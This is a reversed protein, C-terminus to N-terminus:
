VIGEKYDMLSIVRSVTNYATIYSERLGRTRVFVANMMNIGDNLQQLEENESMARSRVFERVPRKNYDNLIRAIELDMKKDFVNKMMGLNSELISLKNDLTSKYGGYIQLYRKLDERTCSNLNYLHVDHEKAVDEVSSIGINKDIYDKVILIEDKISNLMKIM